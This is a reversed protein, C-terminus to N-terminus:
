RSLLGTILSLIQISLIVNIMNNDYKLLYVTM